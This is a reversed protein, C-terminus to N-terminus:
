NDRPGAVLVDEATNLNCDVLQAFPDDGLAVARPPREPTRSRARLCASAAKLAAAQIVAGWIQRAADRSEPDAASSRAASAATRAAEPALTGLCSSVLPIFAGLPAVRDAYEAVKKREHQLLVDLPSSAAYSEAGTHVVAVDFYADRGAHGWGKAMIDARADFSTNTARRPAAHPPLSPLLPEEVVLPSGARRFLAVWALLVSRHRTMVLGERKCKLAHSVSNSHGCSPCLTPLPDPPDLGMRLAVADRFEGRDLQLGLSDLPTATLWSSAGDLRTERLTRKQGPPLERELADARAALAADRAEFRDRKEKRLLKPDPRFRPDQALIAAKLPAALAVAAAREERAVASPQPIGLGGHRAPLAARRRVPDNPNATWGLVEPFFFGDLAEDLPKYLEPDVETTRMTYRWRPVLCNFLLSFAPHPHTVGLAAMKRTESVWAQVKDKVWRDRFAPSGLGAGLYREGLAARLGSPGPGDERVVRLDAFNPVDAFAEQVKEWRGEKVLLVTKRSNLQYGFAPGDSQLARLWGAALTASAAVAGDDAYFVQTAGQVAIKEILPLSSLAFFASGLPCGQTTGEEAVITHGGAVILLNGAGYLNHLIPSLQPCRETATRLGRARNMCNFANSADALVVCDTDAREWVEQLAAAAAECAGPLGGAVQLAGCAEQLAPRTVSLALRGVLRRLAEGVGVPRVRGEGKDLPVLRSARFCEITGPAVASGMLRQALGAIESCLNHAQSSKSRCLTKLFDCSLGSPGPAGRLHAAVKLVLDGDIVDLFGPPLEPPPDAFPSSSAPPPHLARLQGLTEDDVQLVGRSSEMRRAAPGLRGSGVLDRLEEALAMPVTWRGNADVPGPTAASPRQVTGIARASSNRSRPPEPRSPGAARRM